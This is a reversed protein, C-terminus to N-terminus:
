NTANVFQGHARHLQTLLQSVSHQFDAEETSECDSDAVHWDSVQELAQVLTTNIGKIIMERYQETM